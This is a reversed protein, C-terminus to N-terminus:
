FPTPTPTPQAAGVIGLIIWVLTVVVTIGVAAFGLIIGALAAARGVGLSRARSLAPFGLGVALIGLPAAIIASLIGVLPIPVSLGFFAGVIGVIMAGTALGNGASPLIPSYVTPTGYPPREPPVPADIM